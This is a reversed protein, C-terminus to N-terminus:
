HRENAATAALLQPHDVGKATASLSRHVFSSSYM